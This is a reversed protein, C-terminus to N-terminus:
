RADSTETEESCDNDNEKRPEPYLGRWVCALYPFRDNDPNRFAKDMEFLSLGEGRMWELEAAFSLMDTLSVCEAPIATLGWPGCSLLEYLRNLWYASLQLRAVNGRLPFGDGDGTQGFVSEYSRWIFESLYSDTPESKWPESSGAPLLFEDPIRAASLSNIAAVGKKGHGASTYRAM